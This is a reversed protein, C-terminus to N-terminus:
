ASQEGDTVQLIDDVSIKQINLKEMAANLGASDKFGSGTLCCVVRKDGRLRGSEVDTKVAALTIAAAPEM